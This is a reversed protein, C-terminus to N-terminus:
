RLEDIDVATAYLAPKRISLVRIQRRRQRAAEADIDAVLVADGDAGARTLIKGRNIRTPGLWSVLIIPYIELFLGKKPRLASKKCGM